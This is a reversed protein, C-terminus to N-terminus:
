VPLDVDFLAAVAMFVVPKPFARFPLKNSSM